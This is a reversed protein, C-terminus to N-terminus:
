RMPGAHGVAAIGIRDVADNYTKVMNKTSAITAKIDSSIHDLGQM